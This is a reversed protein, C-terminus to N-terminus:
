KSKSLISVRAKLAEILEDDVISTVEKAKGSLEAYGGAILKSADSDLMGSKRLFEQLEVETMGAAKVSDVTASQLMPFTVISVEMLEVSKLLRVSGQYDSEITRYGISLGDIAKSFVMTAVENGLATDIFHGKVRLGKDDIAVEDWVGIVADPRHQWLMKPKMSELSANFAGSMMVDDGQDKAGFISAYGSFSKTDSDEAKLEFNNFYKYEM